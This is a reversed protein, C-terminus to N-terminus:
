LCYIHSLTCIRVPSCILSPFYQLLYTTLFIILYLVLNCFGGAMPLFAELGEEVILQVSQGLVSPDYTSTQVQFNTEDLRALMTIASVETRLLEHLLPSSPASSASLRIVCAIKKGM